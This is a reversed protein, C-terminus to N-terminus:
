NLELKMFVTNPNAGLNEDLLYGSQEYVKIASLNDKVVELLITSISTSRCAEKINLMLQKGIGQNQYEAKVYMQIIEGANALVQTEYTIGCIGVLHNDMYAGVMCGKPSNEEILREFYLRELKVQQEYGSGFYEPYKKLAEIRLERYAPSDKPELIKISLM